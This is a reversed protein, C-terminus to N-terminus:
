DGGLSQFHKELFEISISTSPYHIEGFKHYMLIIASGDNTECLKSKREAENESKYTIERNKLTGSNLNNSSDSRSSLKQCSPLFFSVLLFLFISLM